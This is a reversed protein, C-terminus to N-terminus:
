WIDGRGGARGDLQCLFALVAAYEDEVRASPVDEDLGFKKLDALLTDHPGEQVVEPKSYSVDPKSNSVDPKSNSLRKSIMSKARTCLVGLGRGKVRTSEKPCVAEDFMTLANDLEVVERRRRTGGHMNMMM